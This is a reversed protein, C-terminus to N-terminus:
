FIKARTKFIEVLTKPFEVPSPIIKLLRFIFISTIMLVLGETLVTVGAAGYYSFRPIAILNAIVNFILAGFAVFFYPRQRGL